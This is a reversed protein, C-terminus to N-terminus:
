KVGERIEAKLEDWMKDLTNGFKTILNIYFNACLDDNAPILVGGLEERLMQSPKKESGCERCKM